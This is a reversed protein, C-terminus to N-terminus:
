CPFLWNVLGFVGLLALLFFSFCLLMVREWNLFRWDSPILNEFGYISVRYLEAESPEETTGLDFFIDTVPLFFITVESLAVQVEDDTEAQAQQILRRLQRIRSWEPRFPGKAQECYIPQLDCNKRLWAENVLPSLEDHVEFNDVIRQWYFAKHQVLRGIGQCRECPHGGRGECAPCSVYLLDNQDLQEFPGEHELAPAADKAGKLKPFVEQAKAWLWEPLSSAYTSDALEEPTVYVRQQGECEPCIVKGKGNCSPCTCIYASGPLYEQNGPNDEFTELPPLEVDWPTLEPELPFLEKKHDPEELLQPAERIEYVVRLRYFYLHYSRLMHLKALRGLLQKRWFSQKAWQNLLKAVVGPQYLRKAQEEAQVIPARILDPGLVSEIISQENEDETAPPPDLPLSAAPEVWSHSGEGLLQPPRFKQQTVAQHRLLIRELENVAAQATPFRKAPDTSLLVQFVRDVEKPLNRLGRQRLPLPPGFNNQPPGPIEDWPLAGCLMVYLVVGLSYIDSLPTVETASRTHEPSWYGPTGMITYVSTMSQSPERAIGFDTLLARGTAREFLINGPSVDRHVIDFSHAYDLASAIQKFTNLAEDLALQGENQIVQQLSGGNVYELITCYFPDYFGHDYVQVINTHQLRSTLNAERTFRQITDRDQALLIKIAVQRQELYAHRALWVQSTGGQGTESELEYNGIRRPINVM